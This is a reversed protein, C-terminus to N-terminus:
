GGRSGDVEEELVQLDACGRAYAQQLWECFKSAQWIRAQANQIDKLSLTHANEILYKTAEDSERQAEAKLYLGIDSKWFDDILEAFAASQVRPDNPDLGIPRM